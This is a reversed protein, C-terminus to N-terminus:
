LRKVRAFYALAEGLPAAPRACAIAPVLPLREDHAKARAQDRRIWDRMYAGVNSWDRRARPTGFLAEVIARLSLGPFIGGFARFILRAKSLVEYAANREYRRYM